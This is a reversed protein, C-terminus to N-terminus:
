AAIQRQRQVTERLTKVNISAVMMKLQGDLVLIPALPATALLQVTDSQVSKLSSLLQGSNLTICFEPEGYNWSDSQFRIVEKIQIEQAIVSEIVLDGNEKFLLDIYDARFTDLKEKSALSDILAVTATFEDAPLLFCLSNEKPTLISSCASPFSDADLLCISVIRRLSRFHLFKSDTWVLVQGKLSQLVGVGKYHLLLPKKWTPPLWDLKHSAMRRKDTAVLEVAVPNVYIGQYQAGSKEQDTFPEIIKLAEVAKRDLRDPRGSEPYPYFVGDQSAMLTIKYLSESPKKIQMEGSTIKIKIQGNFKATFATLLIRKHVTFEIEKTAKCYISERFGVLHGDFCSVTLRRKSVQFRVGEYAAVLPTGQLVGRIEKVVASLRGGDVSIVTDQGM